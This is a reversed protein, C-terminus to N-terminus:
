SPFSQEFNDLVKSSVNELVTASLTFQLMCLRMETLEVQTATKVWTNIEYVFTKITVDTFKFDVRKYFGTIKSLNAPYEISIKDFNVCNQLTHDIM